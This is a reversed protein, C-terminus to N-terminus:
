SFCCSVVERHPLKVRCCKEVVTFKTLTFWVQLLIKFAVIFPVYLNCVTVHALSRNHMALVTLSLRLLM